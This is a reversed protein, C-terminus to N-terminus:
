SVVIYNTKTVSSSGATNRVTLIVSFKGKKTYTHVPNQLNSTQGDGFSWTYILNSGLSNNTFRVILPHRGKTPSASFSATPKSISTTVNILNTKTVTNQGTSNKATLSVSFQGASNYVHIPNPLQSSTNDGFSWNFATPNGTSINTFTVQLPFNGTTPSATFNAVIPVVIATVTILGNKTITNQNNSGNSVTLSVSFTGVTNYIHTPNQLHSVASDGFTWSWSNPSGTSNDTFNVSSGVFINTSSVSFNAVVPATVTVLGNKTVTNSGFSNSAKLSVSFVGPNQYTHSVNQLTSTTNDGMNWLWSTPNNTSTDNFQINTPVIGNLNGTTTFSAVPAQGIPQIGGFIALWLGGNPTGIGSCCDYGQGASFSGNNGITIDHCVSPNAYITPQIFGVNKGINQNIRALLGSILPAVASTGGVVITGGQSSMYLQYGTSPSANSAMDPVMRKGGSAVTTINQQYNPLAFVKSIGGGTASNPGDNWVTEQSITNGNAQLYTGGCSVAYPSSGPFDVNNGSAADSSGNDGSAVLITVGKNAASQFLSNYTQMTSVNWYVEAAGWSISIISCNDNIAMNIADYFGQDTNPAFYVFISAKPAIAAIVEIDLVVEVSAGSPDNPNNIGGDVGVATVNPTGSIGLISFYHTLDSMVFGGGLEIIGVKVGTGDLGNPFNYLTALQLPTFTGGSRQKVDNNAMKVYSHVIPHNNLGLVNDLKDKWQIPLILPTLHGHYVAQGNVYNVDTQYQNLQIKLAQNFSAANGTVNLHNADIPQVSLGFQGCFNNVDNVFANVDDNSLNQNIVWTTSVQHNDDLKGLHKTLANPVHHSGYFIYKSM